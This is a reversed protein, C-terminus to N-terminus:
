FPAPKEKRRKKQYAKGKPECYNGDTTNVVGTRWNSVDM